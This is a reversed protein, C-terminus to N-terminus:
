PDRDGPRSLFRESAPGEATDDVQHPYLGMEELLRERIQRDEVRGEFDAVCVLHQQGGLFVQTREGTIAGVVGVYLRTGPM